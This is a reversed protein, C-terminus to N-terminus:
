CRGAAKEWPTGRRTRPRVATASEGGRLGPPAIVKIIERHEIGSETQDPPIHGPVSNSGGQQHSLGAGVEPDEGPSAFIRALDQRPGVPNEGLVDAALTEDREKQAPQIGLIATKGIGTGTM